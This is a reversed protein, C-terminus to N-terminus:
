SQSVYLAKWKDANPIGSFGYKNVDFMKEVRNIKAINYTLLPITDDLTAFAFTYTADDYVFMGLMTKTEIIGNDNLTAPFACIDGCHINRGNKDKGITINKLLM